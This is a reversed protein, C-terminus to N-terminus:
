PLRFGAIEVRSRAVSARGTTDQPVSRPMPATSSSMAAANCLAAPRAPATPGTPARTRRHADGPAMREEHHEVENGARHEAAELADGVLV